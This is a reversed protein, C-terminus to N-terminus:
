NGAEAEAEAEARFDRVIQERRRKLVKSMAEIEQGLSEEFEEQEEDVELEEAGDLPVFVGNNLERLIEKLVLPLEQRYQVALSLYRNEFFNRVRDDDESFTSSDSLLHFLKTGDANSTALLRSLHIVTAVFAILSKSLETIAFKRARLQSRKRKNSGDTARPGLLVVRLAKYYYTTQKRVSLLLSIPEGSHYM